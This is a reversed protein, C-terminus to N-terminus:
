HITAVEYSKILKSISTGDYDHDMRVQHSDFWDFVPKGEWFNHFSMSCWGSDWRNEFPDHSDRPFFQIVVPAILWAIRNRKLLAWLKPPHKAHWGPNELGRHISTEWFIQLNALNPPKYGQNKKLFRVPVRGGVVKSPLFNCQLNKSGHKWPPFFVLYIQIGMNQHDWKLWRFCRIKPVFAGRKCSSSELCPEVKTFTLIGSPLKIWPSVQVLFSFCGFVMGFCVDSM